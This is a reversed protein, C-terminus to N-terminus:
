KSVVVVARAGYDTSFAGNGHYVRGYYSLDWACYALSSTASM